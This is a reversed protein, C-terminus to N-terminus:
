NVPSNTMAPNRKIWAEFDAVFYLVKRGVKFYRPGVKRCRMNALTGESIGYAQSAQYPTLAIREVKKM